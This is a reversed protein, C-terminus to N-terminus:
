FRDELRLMGSYNNFKATLYEQHYFYTFLEDGEAVKNLREMYKKFEHCTKKFLSEGYLPLAKILTTILAKRM